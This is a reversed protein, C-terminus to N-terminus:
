NGGQSANSTSSSKLGEQGTPAKARYTAIAKNSTMIVTEGTGKAGHILHEPDAVMAALNSNVACGFGANTGNNYNTASNDGWDPCGPVSAKSRTVVVRAKGPMVMGETVPAGESVLIGYRAAIEAVKQRTQASALPDDISVRDGYRLDMAAFWENLRQQEPIPLGGSSADLEFTFNSRDVVPQKISDLTRNTPEGACASLSLGLTLALALAAPKTLRNLM